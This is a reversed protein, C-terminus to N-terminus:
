NKALLSFIEAPVVLGSNPANGYATIDCVTSARERRRRTHIAAVGLRGTLTDQSFLAAGSVGGQTQCSHAVCPPEVAVALCTPSPDIRLLEVWAGDKFVDERPLGALTRELQRGLQLVSQHSILVLPAFSEISVRPLKAFPLAEPFDAKILVIDETADALRDFRDAVRPQFHGSLSSDIGVLPIPTTPDAALYFHFQGLAYAQGWTDHFCHKATIITSPGTRTAACWVGDPAGRFRLVGVYPKLGELEADFPPRLCSQDFAKVERLVEQQVTPSQYTGASLYRSGYRKQREVLARAASGCATSWAQFEESLLQELLSAPPASSILSQQGDPWPEDLAGLAIIGAGVVDPEVPQQITSDPLGLRDPKIGWAMFERILMARLENDFWAGPVASSEAMLVDELAERVEESLPMAPEEIRTERLLEAWSSWTASMAELDPDSSMVAELEASLDLAVREANTLGFEHSAVEGIGTTRSPEQALVSQSDLCGIAVVFTAFYKPTPRM